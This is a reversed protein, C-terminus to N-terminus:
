ARGHAHEFDLLWRKTEIGGAFGTLTGNAGIVRHCPLVISLPNRGNAAGIARAATPHGLTAAQEGYSRTAGYPIAALARWAKVQFPTGHLDFPLDFTTRQAAFWDDLQQATRDLVASPGTFVGATLPPLPVRRRNDNPWLVARLGATSAVLLLEGVPSDYPRAVLDDASV